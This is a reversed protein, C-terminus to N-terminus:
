AVELGWVREAGCLRCSYMLKHGVTDGNLTQVPVKRSYLHETLEPEGKDKCRGECLLLFGEIERM